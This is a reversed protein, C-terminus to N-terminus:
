FGDTYVSCGIRDPDEDHSDRHWFLGGLWQDTEILTYVQSDHWHM